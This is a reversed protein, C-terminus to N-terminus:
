TDRPALDIRQRLTFTNVVAEVVAVETIVAHINGIELMIGVAPLLQIERHDPASPMTAITATMRGASASGRATTSSNVDCPQEDHGGASLSIPSSALSGEIMV